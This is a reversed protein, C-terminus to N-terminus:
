FLRTNGELRAHPVRDQAAECYSPAVSGIDHRFEEPVQVDQLGSDDPPWHPPLLEGLRAPRLSGLSLYCM